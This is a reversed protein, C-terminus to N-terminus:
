FYNQVIESIQKNDTKFKNQYYLEKFKEIIEGETADNDFLDRMNRNM